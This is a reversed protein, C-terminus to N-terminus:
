DVLTVYQPLAILDVSLRGSDIKPKFSDGSGTKGTASKVDKSPLEFSVAHPDGLTWAAIKQQRPVNEFLIAYDKESALPLRKSVRYGALERALTQIALYAPKPTLDPLVTGFNHENENPDTGDNKWDYWISLPVGNLLNVMQQRAAFAAQAELSVGRNWSSYGWEGSLIPIEAPRTSLAYRKILERLKRYDGSATEPPKDPGRYPHVSVADLYNLVGSKFFTELFEWPFGSSAPGIITASPEAERIARAAALAMATYQQADPKPSWFDINPENWLEWLV